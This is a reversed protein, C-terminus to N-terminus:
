NQYVGDLELNSDGNGVVSTFILTLEGYDYGCDYQEADVGDDAVASQLLADGWALGDARGELM